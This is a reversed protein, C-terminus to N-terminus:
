GWFSTSIDKQEMRRIGSPAYAQLLTRIVMIPLACPAPPGSMARASRLRMVHAFPLRNHLIMVRDTCSHARGGSTGRSHPSSCRHLPNLAELAKEPSSYFFAIISRRARQSCVSASIFRGDCLFLSHKSKSLSSAGAQPESLRSNCRGVM